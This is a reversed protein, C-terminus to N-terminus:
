ITRTKHLEIKQLQNFILTKTCSEINRTRKNIIKNKSLEDTFMTSQYFSITNNCKESLM